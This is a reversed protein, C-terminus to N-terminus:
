MLGGSLLVSQGTMYGTKVLMEVVNGVEDTTGLRGVPINKVDGPTGEVFKADPIMGTEGIMAPAVDNVTIGQGAHKRALNKMLGQLGAKSAAYHCGNIGGGQAAISSVFIIRGWNRQIMHPLSLKCLLFSSRLNINLMKDFEDLSIDLISPIRRGYGANSILIDPGSQGHLDQLQTFLLQIDAPSSLDCKHTSFPLPNPNATTRNLSLAPGHATQGNTFAEYLEQELAQLKEPSSSYTLALHAGLSWLRRAVAAGIGGSAGTILVLKGKVENDVQAM